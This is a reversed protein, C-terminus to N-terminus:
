QQSIKCIIIDKIIKHQLYVFFFDFALTKSHFLEDVNKM